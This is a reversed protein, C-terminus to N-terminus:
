AKILTVVGQQEEVGKHMLRVTVITILVASFIVHKFIQYRM